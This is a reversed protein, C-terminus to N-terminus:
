DPRLMNEALLQGDHRAAAAVGHLNTVISRLRCFTVCQHSSLLHREIEAVEAMSVEVYDFSSVM